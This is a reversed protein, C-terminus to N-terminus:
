LPCIRLSSKFPSADSLSSTRVRMLWDLELAEPANLHQGQLMVCLFLQLCCVLPGQTGNGVAAM